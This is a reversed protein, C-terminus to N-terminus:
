EEIGMEADTADIFDSNIRRVTLILTVFFVALCAAGLQPEGFLLKGVGFILSVVCTAALAWLVLVRGITECERYECDLGSIVKNWFFRPPRTKLVFQQLTKKDTPKTSLSVIVAAAVSSLIVFLM